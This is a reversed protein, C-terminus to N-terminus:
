KKFSNMFDKIESFGISLDKIFAIFGKKFTVNIKEVQYNSAGDEARLAFWNNGEALQVEGLFLGSPGIKWEMLKKEGDKTVIYLKKYVNDTSNYLYLTVTVGEQGSGSIVYNKEFVTIEEGTNNNLIILDTANGMDNVSMIEPAAFATGAVSMIFMALILAIFRKM